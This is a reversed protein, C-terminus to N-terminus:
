YPGRMKAENDTLSTHVIDICDQATEDRLDGKCLLERAFTQAQYCGEWVAKNKIYLINLSVDVFSFDGNIKNIEQKM